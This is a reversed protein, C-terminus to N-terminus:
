PLVVPVNLRDCEAWLPEFYRDHWNRGNVINPRMYVAKLGLEQTQTRYVYLSVGPDDFEARPTLSCWTPIASAEVVDCM